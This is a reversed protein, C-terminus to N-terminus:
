LKKSPRTTKINRPLLWVMDVCLLHPNPKRHLDYYEKQRVQAAVMENRLSEDLQTMAEPKTEEGRILHRIMKYEPNIRYNAFFPTNNITEQDGNNYRFERLHYTVVGITKNITYIHEYTNNCYPM